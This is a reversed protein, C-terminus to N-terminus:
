RAPEEEEFCSKDGFLLCLLPIGNTTLVILGTFIMAFAAMSTGGPMESMAGPNLLYGSVIGFIGLLLDCTYVIVLGTLARPDFKILQLTGIFLGVVLVLKLITTIYGITKAVPNNMQARMTAIQNRQSELEAASQANGYRTSMAEMQEIYEEGRTMFYLSMASTGLGTVTFLLSVAIVFKLWFPRYM